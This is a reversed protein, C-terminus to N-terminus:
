TMRSSILESFDSYAFFKVEGATQDKGKVSVEPVKNCRVIISDGRSKFHIALIPDTRRNSDTPTKLSRYVRRAISNITTYTDKAM